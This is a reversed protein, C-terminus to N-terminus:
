RLEAAYPPDAGRRSCTVASAALALDLAPRVQAATLALRGGLHGASHLGALLGATFTDGAGVTDVVDVAVAPAHVVEDGVVAIAGHRGATVVVLGPGASGWRRAVDVAAEGPHLLAVDDTSARFVDALRLWRAVAERASAPTVADPRLNPDISITAHPRMRHLFREIAPARLLALSGTHVALVGAVEPLEDDTWQWDATGDLLFRYSAAGAADTMVVALSSPERAAVAHSLDVANQVLHSRLQRGFADAALRALLTVPVGLRSLAVATNAPSGGPKAAFTASGTPILDVLAEGCVAIVANGDAV